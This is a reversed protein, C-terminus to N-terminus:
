KTTEEVSQYKDPSEKFLSFDDVIYREGCGKCLCTQPLYYRTNETGCGMCRIIYKM